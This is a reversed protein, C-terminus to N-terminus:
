EKIHSVIYEVTTGYTGSAPDYGPTDSENVQYGDLINVGQETEPGWDNLVDFVAEKVAKVSARTLGFIILQFRPEMVSNTRGHTDNQPTSVRMYVIYPHTAEEPAKQPYIRGSVLGNLTADAIMEARLADEVFAM